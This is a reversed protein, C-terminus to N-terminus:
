KKKLFAIYVAMFIWYAMYGADKARVRFTPMKAFLSIFFDTDFSFSLLESSSMPSLIVHSSSDHFSCPWGLKWGHLEKNPCYLVLKTEM